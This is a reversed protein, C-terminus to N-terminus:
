SRIDRPLTKVYKNAPLGINDLGLLINKCFNFSSFTYVKSPKELFIKKIIALPYTKLLWKFEKWLGLSLIQNIIYSKDENVDLDKVDVSWLIGQLFKPIKTTKKM